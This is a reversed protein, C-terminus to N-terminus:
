FIHKKFFIGIHGAPCSGCRFSGLINQCTAGPYCPNEICEDVDVCIPNNLDKSIRFGWECLCKYGIKIIFFFNFILFFRKNLPFVIVTNAACIWRFNVHQKPKNVYIEMFDMQVNANFDPEM